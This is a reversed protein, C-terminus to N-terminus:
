RDDDAGGGSARMMIIGRSSSRACKAASSAAAMQLAPLVQNCLLSSYQSLRMSELFDEMEQEPCMPPEKAASVYLFTAYVAAIAVAICVLFVCALVFSISLGSLFSKIRCVLMKLPLFVSKLM